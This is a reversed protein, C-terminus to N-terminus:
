TSFRQMPTSRPRRPMSLRQRGPRALYPVFLRAASRDHGARGVRLRRSAPARELPFSRRSGLDTATIPTGSRPAPWRLPRRPSGVSASGCRPATPAGVAKILAGALLPGTAQAVADSQELRANASTLLTPPVLRPLLAQDAADFVLSLTGITMVLLILTPLSLLDAAHLLPIACLLVARGLDTGVRVAVLRSM